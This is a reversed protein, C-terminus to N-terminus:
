LHWWYMLLSNNIMFLQLSPEIILVMNNKCLVQAWYGAGVYHNVAIQLEVELLDLAM